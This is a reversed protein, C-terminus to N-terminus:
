PVGSLRFYRKLPDSLFGDNPAGLTEVVSKTVKHGTVRILRGSLEPEVTNVRGIKLVKMTVIM